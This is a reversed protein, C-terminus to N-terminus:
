GREWIEIRDKNPKDGIKVVHYVLKFDLLGQCHPCRITVSGSLLMQLKQWRTIHFQHGCSCYQLKPDISM